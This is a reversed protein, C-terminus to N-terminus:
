VSFFSFHVKGYSRVEQFYANRSLDTRHGHEVVLLGNEKLLNNEFVLNSIESINELDYPPDAFIFDFVQGTKKLYRFADSKLPRIPLGMEMATKRVFQIANGAIDVAYVEPVGRSALEYAINGTGTFLDLAGITELDFRHMLINFLAEKAFDTTPRVKIKEPAKIRKSRYKGSIIRM